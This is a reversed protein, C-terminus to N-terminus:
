TAQISVTAARLQKASFNAPPNLGHDVDQSGAPDRQISKTPIWRNLRNCQEWARDPSGHRQSIPGRRPGSIKSLFYVYTGPVSGAAGHVTLFAWLSPGRTNKPFQLFNQGDPLRGRMCSGLAAHKAGSRTTPSLKGLVLTCGASDVTSGPEARNCAWSFNARTSLVFSLWHRPVPKAYNALNPSLTHGLCFFPPIVPLQFAFTICVDCANQIM